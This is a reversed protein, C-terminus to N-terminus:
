KREGNDYYYYDVTSIKEEDDSYETIEEKLKRGQQDYTYVSVYDISESDKNITKGVEKM